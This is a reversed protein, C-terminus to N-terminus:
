KSNAIFVFRDRDQLDKEVVIKSKPFYERAIKKIDDAQNMGIEFAILYTDSLYTPANKLIIEYYELGKNNAYLALHPENNKVISMVEEDLSIYPPNSIICDYKGTLPEFLDGLYFTIDTNNNKANELAVSLADESIDVASILSNPMKQKLAIAICGSGTGLDVIKLEKKFNQKLYNITKFVLEETEFRPILVNKNVKIKIGCFDVEGVIYQVPEGDELKKLAEELKSSPLYRKLYDIDTM